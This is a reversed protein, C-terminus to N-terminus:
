NTRRRGMKRHVDDIHMVNRNKKLYNWKEAHKSSTYYSWMKKCTMGIRLASIVGFHNILEKRIIEEPLDM